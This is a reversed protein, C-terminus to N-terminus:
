QERESRSIPFEDSHQVTHGGSSLELRCFLKTRDSSISFREMIEIDQGDFSQLVQEVLAGEEWYGFSHRGFPVGEHVGSIGGGAGNGITGPKRTERFREEVVKRYQQTRRRMREAEPNPQPPNIHFDLMRLVAELHDEPVQDILSKLENRSTM